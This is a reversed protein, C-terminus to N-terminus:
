VVNWVMECRISNAHMKKFEMLDYDLQAFSQDAGVPPNWTQYEMGRPIFYEEAVPDWFYGNRMKLFGGSALSTQVGLLGCCFLLCLWRGTPCANRRDRRVFTEQGELLSEAAAPVMVCPLASAIM